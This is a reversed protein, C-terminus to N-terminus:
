IETLLFYHKKDLTDWNSLYQGNLHIIQNAKKYQYSIMGSVPNGNNGLKIKKGNDTTYRDDDTYLIFFNLDAIGNNQYFELNEIDMLVEFRNDTTHANPNKSFYKMEIAATCKKGNTALSLFIDIRANGTSSKVTKLNPNHFEYELIIDLKNPSSVYKRGIDNLIVGMQMQMSAENHVVYNRSSIQACLEEYAEFIVLYLISKEKTM